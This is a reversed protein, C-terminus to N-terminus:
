KETPLVVPNLRAIRGKPGVVFPLSLANWNGNELPRWTKGDDRSVDSGNTGATIWLKLDPSWQVSSRYGHPPFTSATWHQGGDNSWAATGKGESPKKYDGGLAVAASEKYGRSISQVSFIGASPSDGAIPLVKRDFRLGGELCSMPESAASLATCEVDASYLWPGRPGSTGFIPLGGNGQLTMASNSAAFAGIKEPGSALDATKASNWTQGSDLTFLLAFKGLVPDGFLFGTKRSDFAIGDWFGDKDHNTLLLSWSRCGDVTKYLRSKDGPGSAMVIATTADWAQVGRFDLTAGDKEADPVACKEWHAGGDTTKLVTGETGSAWAAMGDVSDIGRLGATTGSEQMQWVQQTLPQLVAQTPAPPASQAAAVTAAVLLFESLRRRLDM